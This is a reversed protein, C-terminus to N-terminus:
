EQERIVGHAGVSEDILGDPALDAIFNVQRPTLSFLLVLVEHFILDAVQLHFELLLSLQLLQAVVVVHVVVILERRVVDILVLFLTDDLSRDGRM